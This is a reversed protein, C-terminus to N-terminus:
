CFNRVIENEFAICRSIKLQIVFRAMQYRFNVKTIEVQIYVLTEPKEGAAAM